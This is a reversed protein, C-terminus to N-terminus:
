KSNGRTALDGSILLKPYKTFYIYSAMEMGCGTGEETVGGVVTPDFRTSNYNSFLTAARKSCLIPPKACGNTVDPYM